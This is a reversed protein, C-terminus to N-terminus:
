SKSTSGATLFSSSQNIMMNSGQGNLFLYGAALVSVVAIILLFVKLPSTEKKRPNDGKNGDGHGPNGPRQRGTQGQENSNRQYIYTVQTDM